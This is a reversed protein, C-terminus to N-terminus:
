KLTVPFVCTKAPAMLNHNVQIEGRVAICNLTGGGRRTEMGFRQLYSSPSRVCFSAVKTKGGRSVANMWSVFVFFFFTLIVAMVCVASLILDPGEGIRVRGNKLDERRVQQM